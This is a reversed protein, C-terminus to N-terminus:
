GGAADAMIEIPGGCDLNALFLNSGFIHVFLLGILHLLHLMPKLGLSVIGGKVGACQVCKGFTAIRCNEMM